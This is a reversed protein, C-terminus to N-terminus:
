YNKLLRRTLIGATLLFAGSWYYLSNNGGTYPLEEKPSKEPVKVPPVVKGPESPPLGGGGEPTPEERPGSPSLGGDGKGNGGDGNGGDGNGGDGNGGDGPKEKNGFDKNQENTGSQVAVTYTGPTAPTIQVWGDKLVEKITWTGSENSTFTFEYYGYVDTYASKTVSEKVALIEWEKLYPDDDQRSGNGNLDHYKHGSVKAQKFGGNDGGPKEKNGFDKNQENAGSQITVTYTGGAPATQEWGQKLEEKIVWTGSENSTFTFEYYGYVDTYATKTVTDVTDKTAIIKWDILYPEDADKVGNGNMDNWKHGSVKAQEPPPPPPGETVKNGFNKDTITSGSQVKVTHTGPAAPYTQNWGAQLVESITWNGFESEAFTFEYYGNANTTATKTSEGKAAKITWNALYPEDADKVGNGNMDNWKHGSVKAQEPPPPPPPLQKNGFCLDKIDTHCDVIKIQHVGGAPATQEWGQKLEEKITWTGIEYWVFYFEFYGDADTYTVKPPVNDKEAIIKWDELAPEGYDWRGNGNFDHFKFGSLRAFFSPNNQGGEGAYTLSTVSEQQTNSVYGNLNDQPANFVGEGGDGLALAIGTFGLIFLTLILCALLTQLRILRM